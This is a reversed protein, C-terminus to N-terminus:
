SPSCATPRTRGARASAKWGAHGPQQGTELVVTRQVFAETPGAPGRETAGKAGASMGEHLNLFARARSITAENMAEKMQATLWAKAKNKAKIGELLRYQEVVKAMGEVAIDGTSEDAEDAAVNAAAQFDTLDIPKETITDTTTAETSAAEETPQVDAAENETATVTAEEPAETTINSDAESAKPNRRAM